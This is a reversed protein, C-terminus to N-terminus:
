MLVWSRKAGSGPPPDRRWVRQLFEIIASSCLMSIPHVPPPQISGSGDAASGAGEAAGAAVSMPDAFLEGAGARAAVGALFAAPAVFDTRLPPEPAFFAAFF